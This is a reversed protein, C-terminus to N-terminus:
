NDWMVNTGDDWLVWELDDWQMGQAFGNYVYIPRGIGLYPGVM